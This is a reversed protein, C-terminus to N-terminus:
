SYFCFQDNYSKGCKDLKDNLNFRSNVNETESSQSSDVLRIIEDSGNMTVTINDNSTSNIKLM